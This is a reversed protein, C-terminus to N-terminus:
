FEIAQPKTKESFEAALVLVCLERDDSGKGYAVGANRFAPNFLNLRHLRNSIGDDIIWLLLIERASNKDYALNEGLKGRATGFRRIREDFSSGDAGTHGLAPNIILDQLQLDASKTLGEATQLPEIPALNKLFAIAEDVAGVGEITMTLRGDSDRIRSGSLRKRYDELYTIFQQPNQRAANIEDLVERSVNTLNAGEKKKLLLQRNKQASIDIQFFCAFLILYVSLGYLKEKM